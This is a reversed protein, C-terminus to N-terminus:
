ASDQFQPISRPRHRLLVHINHFGGERCPVLPAHIVKTLEVVGTRHDDRGRLTPRLWRGGYPPVRNHAGPFVLALGKIGIRCFWDAIEGIEAVSYQHSEYPPAGAM